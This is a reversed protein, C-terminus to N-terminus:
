EPMEFGEPIEINSSVTQVDDDEELKDIMKLAKQTTDADLAVYTDPVMSVAASVSEFGKEQLAELVSAFDNPDTTVTIVGDEAAIDEAGAELAAEMIAEESVVEADYEIVGKRNFMYAVSGTAGLNGGSKTFINRVSAATRNKNDTLVEVLVAVGGPGYGEYLLEEYNVAGLEGTGKKIAREINDKPMNAARAKLVATRLRPNTAPDGGGMKAAISIEKIFKTFLQGRKADAAGKAHKITAWKSHGSM